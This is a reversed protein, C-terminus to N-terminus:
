TATEPVVLTFTSGKALESEVLIRGEARKVIGHVVSLGLGLAGPRTTFFPEFIKDRDSATMGRGNDVVQLRFYSAEPLGYDEIMRRQMPYEPNLSATSVRIYGGPATAEGANQVLRTVLTELDNAGLRIQSGPADTTIELDRDGTIALLLPELSRIIEDPRVVTSPQPRGRSFTLLDKLINAARKSANEIYDLDTRVAQISGFNASLSDTGALVIMLANNLEHTLRGAVRELVPMVESAEALGAAPAGQVTVISTPSAQGRVTRVNVSVRLCAGTRTTLNAARNVDQFVWRAFDPGHLESPRLGALADRDFESLKAFAANAAIIGDQETVIYAPTDIANLFEFRFDVESKSAAQSVVLVSDNQYPCITAQISGNAGLPVNTRARRDSLVESIVQRLGPTGRALQEKFHPPHNPNAAILEGEANVLAIGFPLASLVASANRSEQHLLDLLRYVESSTWQSGAFMGTLHVKTDAQLFYGM